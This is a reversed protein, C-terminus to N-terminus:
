AGGRPSRPRPSGPERRGGTAGLRVPRRMWWVRVGLLIALIAAYITPEQLDAKVLWFFHVIAGIAAAYVGRHLVLWRRGLRKMSRKNSTAALAFLLCFSAFGVTIYPRKAIDEGLLSFDFFLDLGLYTAFHLSGYFFAFLGLSRRLPAAWGWGLLKRLPTVALCLILFRLAWDGTAHTVEEIPNAGLENLLARGTLVVLPLLGAIRVASRSFRRLDPM